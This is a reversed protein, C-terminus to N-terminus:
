IYYIFSCFFNRLLLFIFLLLIILHLFYIGFGLQMFLNNFFHIIFNRLLYNIFFYYYWLSM